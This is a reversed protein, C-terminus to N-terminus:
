YNLLYKSYLLNFSYLLKSSALNGSLFLSSDFSFVTSSFSLSVSSFSSREKASTSFWLLLNSFSILSAKSNPDKLKALSLRAIRSLRCLALSAILFSSVRLILLSKSLNKSFIVITSFSKIEINSFFLM